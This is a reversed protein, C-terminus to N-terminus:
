QRDKFSRAVLFMVIVQIALLIYHMTFVQEINTKEELFKYFVYAVAMGILTGIQKVTDIRMLMYTESLFLTEARILYSSFIFTIQYGIYMLLASQYSFETSLFFLIVGFLVVEVLLTFRYFWQITLIKEYMRAVIIMGLALVIGGLSYISPKLPAYISMVSGLALGAFLANFLKYAIYYSHNIHM